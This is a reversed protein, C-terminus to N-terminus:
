LGFYGCIETSKISMLEENIYFIESVVGNFPLSAGAGLGGIDMRGQGTPSSSQTDGTITQVCDLWVDINSSGNGDWTFIVVYTTSASLVDGTDHYAGQLFIRLHDDSNRINVGEYNGSDNNRFFVMMDADIASGTTFKVAVTRAGTSVPLGVTAGLEVRVSAGGSMDLGSATLTPRDASTSQLFDNNNATQDLWCGVPDSVSSPTSCADTQYVDATYKVWLSLSAEDDPQWGAAPAAHPVFPVVQGNVAPGFAPLAVLLLAILFFRRM